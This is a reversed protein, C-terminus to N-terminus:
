ITPLVVLSGLIHAFRILVGSINLYKNFFNLWTFIFHYGPTNLNIVSKFDNVLLLYEM